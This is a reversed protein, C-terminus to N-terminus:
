PCKTVTASKRTSAASCHCDLEWASLALEIRTVREVTFAWRKQTHGVPRHGHARGSGPTDWM